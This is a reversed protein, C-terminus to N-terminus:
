FDAPLEGDARNGLNKFVQPNIAQVVFKVAGDGMLVHAGGSHMSGFGGVELLQADAGAPQVVQAPMGPRMGMGASTISSTNRLTSRTGSAWGLPDVDVHEGVFITNSSGDRIDHYRICSNLFLVGNNDIDIPAEADHHCGAYTTGGIASGRSIASNSPCALVSLYVGRAPDNPRAYVGVSFDFREFVNSCDLDPLIQVIWGVHYGKAESRIPRNPDVSGPPLCERRMEYNHLAIGIQMLNNKCQTRRAAERAQQVAPLLLSVLVAIIAIVVLLEILTFGGRKCRARRTAVNGQGPQGKNSRGDEMTWGGLERRQFEFLDM